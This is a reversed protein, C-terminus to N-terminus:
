AKLKGIFGSVMKQEMQVMSLLNNVKESSAMKLEKIILLQTELEFASGLAFEVFQRNAKDSLRSSGEAINSPISVAARNVQSKLGYKQDSPLEKSLGYTAIAIDFGMQWIKLEKYNRM